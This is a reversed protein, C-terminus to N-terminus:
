FFILHKGNENFTNSFGFQNNISTSSAGSPSGYVSSKFKYIENLYHQMANGFPVNLFAYCSDYNIFLLVLIILLKTSM